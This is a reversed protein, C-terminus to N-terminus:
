YIPTLGFDLNYSKAFHNRLNIKGAPLFFIQKEGWSTGLDKLAHMVSTLM